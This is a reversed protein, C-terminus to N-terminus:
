VEAIFSYSIGEDYNDNIHILQFRFEVADDCYYNGLNYYYWEDDEGRITNDLNYIKDDLMVNYHNSFKSIKLVLNFNIANDNYNKLFIVKKEKESKIDIKVNSQEQMVKSNNYRDSAKVCIPVAIVLIVVMIFVEVILRRIEKDM